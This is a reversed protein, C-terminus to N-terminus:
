TLTYIHAYLIVHVWEGSYSFKSEFCLCAKSRKDRWFLSNKARM